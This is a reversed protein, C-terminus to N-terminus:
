TGITILVDRAHENYAGREIISEVITLAEEYKQDRVLIRAKVIHAETRVTNMKLSKTIYEMCEDIPHDLENMVKAMTFLIEDDPAKASKNLCNNLCELSLKFLQNRQSGNEEKIGANYLKMGRERYQDPTFAEEANSAETSM